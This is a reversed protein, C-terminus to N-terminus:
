TLAPLLQLSAGQCMATVWIAQPARQVLDADRPAQMDVGRQRPQQCEGGLARRGEQGTAVARLAHGGAQALRQLTQLQIINVQNLAVINLECLQVLCAQHYAQQPAKAVCATRDDYRGGHLQSSGAATCALMGEGEGGEGEVQM